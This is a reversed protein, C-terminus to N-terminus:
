LWACILLNMLPLPLPRLSTFAYFRHSVACGFLLHEITEDDIHCVPCTPPLMLGRSNLAVVTPLARHLLKWPFFNLKPQVKLSWVIKWINVDYPSVSLVSRDEQLSLRLTFGSSSSYEGSPTFHWLIRDQIPSVLLPIALISRVSEETFWYRLLPGNWAGQRIFGAITPPGHYPVILALQPRFKDPSPLWNDFCPDVLHGIGVQWHLGQLLLKRGHLISQWGWSPRARGSATLISESPFYVSNLVRSLFSRSVSSDELM